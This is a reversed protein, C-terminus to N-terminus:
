EHQRASQAITRTAPACRRMRSTRDFQRMTVLPLNPSVQRPPGSLRGISAPWLSLISPRARSSRPKRMRGAPPGDPADLCDTPHGAQDVAGPLRRNGPLGLAGSSLGALAYVTDSLPGADGTLWGGFPRAGDFFYGNVTAVCVLEIDSAAAGAIRLVETISQRPFGFAMKLRTLAEENVAALVKGDQTLAAGCSVGDAIGLVMMCKEEIRMSLLCRSPAPAGSRPTETVRLHGGGGTALVAPRHRGCRGPRHLLHCRYMRRCLKYM